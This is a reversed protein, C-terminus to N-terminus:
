SFDFGFWQNDAIKNSSFEFIFGSSIITAKSFSFMSDLGTHFGICMCGTNAFHSKMFTASLATDSSKNVLPTHKGDSVFIVFSSCFLTILVM